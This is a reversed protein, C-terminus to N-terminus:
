CCSYSSHTLEEGYESDQEISKSGEQKLIGRNKEELLFNGLFEVLWFALFGDGFDESESHTLQIAIFM